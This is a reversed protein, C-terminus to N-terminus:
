QIKREGQFGCHRCSVQLDKCWTRKGCSPCSKREIAGCDLCHTVSIFHKTLEGMIIYQKCDCTKPIRWSLYYDEILFFIEKRCKLCYSVGEAAINPSGCFGCHFRDRQKDQCQTPNRNRKTKRYREEEM